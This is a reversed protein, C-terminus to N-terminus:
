YGALNITTKQLPVFQTVEKRFGLTVVGTPGNRHKAILIDAQNPRESNENYLDDRYIFMVIDSDQEISNHLIIGNGVFNSHQPVTLDYVETEGDPQISVIRDWYVNDSQELGPASAGPQAFSAEELSFGSDFINNGTRYKDALPVAIRDRRMLEDLRKWGALTLFKHNATARISRGLQTTLRYVPKIGTCFANTVTGNELKWTDANLSAVQFGNQGLLTRIPVSRGSEPLYILTDGALCGSERLDSLQPRKDQRQEVARSLQAAALVPVNMERALEKLGRSIYSIEQVRNENKGGGGSMLQLYDVIILDVGHERYLRRAKTRMQPVSIAPTDDLYMWLNGLKGTAEIFLSWEREDLNGLRLKQSNINTEASVFRQFLQESSMEMSFIAVRANGLRAANLAITLLFSTKGVGPRAAVICLDSRQLGGLLRDLDPFGTPLGLPENQHEYLYEISDFYESAVQRIPVLETRTRRETVAFLTREVSDIVDNIEANEELATQAIDAAAAMLRRRIAANSVIRGYTEAHIHTPTNNILSTIYAAGGVQDLQNRSRLEQILTLNDIAEGREHITLIAEWIWANRVIFFDTSQLFAAVDFLADPNILISGLVAEEAEPSNPALKEPQILTGQDSM